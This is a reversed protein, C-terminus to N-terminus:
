APRAAISSVARLHALFPMFVSRKLIMSFFPLGRKALPTQSVASLRLSLIAVVRMLRATHARPAPMPLATLRVSTCATIM